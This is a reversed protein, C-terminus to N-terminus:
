ITSTMTFNASRGPWFSAVHTQMSAGRLEVLIIARAMFMELIAASYYAM